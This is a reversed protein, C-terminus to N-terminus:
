PAYSPPTNVGGRVIYILHYASDAAYIIFCLFGFFSAAGFAGTNCCDNGSLGKVDTERVAAVIALIFTPILWILNTALTILSWPLKNFFGLSVVNLAHLLFLFIALLWGVISFFLYASRSAKIDGPMENSGTAKLVSAASVWACFQFVILAIRLIGTISILYSRTFMIRQPVTPQAPQSVVPPAPYGTGTGDTTAKM